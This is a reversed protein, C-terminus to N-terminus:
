HMAAELKEILTQEDIDKVLHGEPDILLVTPLFQIGYIGSTKGEGDVL